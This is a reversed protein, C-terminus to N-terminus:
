CQYIFYFNIYSVQFNSISEPYAIKRDCMCLPQIQCSIRLCSDYRDCSDMSSRSSVVCLVSCCLTLLIIGAESM